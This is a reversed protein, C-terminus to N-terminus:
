AQPFRSRETCVSRPAGEVFAVILLGFEYREHCSCCCCAGDIQISDAM